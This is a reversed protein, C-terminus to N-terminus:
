MRLRFAIYKIKYFSLVEDENDKQSNLLTVPLSLKTCKQCLFFLFSIQMATISLTVKLLKEYLVAM